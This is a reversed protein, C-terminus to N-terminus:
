AARYFLFNHNDVTFSAFGLSEMKRACLLTDSPAYQPLAHHHFEIFIQDYAAVDEQNLRDILGYEAGEIDLKIYDIHSLGLRQPLSALDVSEVDYTKVTDRQINRHSALISGSANEESENFPITGNKASIALPEHQFRGGMRRAIDALSAHHKRTPDIGIARFGYTQIMHVSFDADFGCGVDIIASREDLGSKFLYNPPIFLIGRFRGVARSFLKRVIHPFRYMSAKISMIHIGRHSM